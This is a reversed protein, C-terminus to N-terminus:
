SDSKDDSFDVSFSHFWCASDRYQWRTLISRVLKQQIVKHYPFCIEEM